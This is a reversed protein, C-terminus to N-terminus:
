QDRTDRRRDTGHIRGQRDGSTAMGRRDRAASGIESTRQSRLFHDESYGSRVELGPANDRYIGCSLIRSAKQLSRMRWCMEVLKRPPEPTRQPSNRVKNWDM